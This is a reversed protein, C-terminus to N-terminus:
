RCINMSRTRAYFADASTGNDADFVRELSTATASVGIERPSVVFECSAKGATYESTAPISVTLTYNGAESPAEPSDYGMGSATTGKYNFRVYQGLAHPYGKLVPRKEEDGYTWGEGEISVSLQYTAISLTFLMETDSGEAIEYNATLPEDISSKLSATVTYSDVSFIGFDGPESTLVFLNEFKHENKLGDVM